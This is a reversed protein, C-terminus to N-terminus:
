RDYGTPRQHERSRSVPPLRAPSSVPKCDNRPRPGSPHYPNTPKVGVRSSWWDQTDKWAAAQGEIYPTAVTNEVRQRFCLSGSARRRGRGARAARASGPGTARARGSTDVTVGGAQFGRRVSKLSPVVRLWALGAVRAADSKGQPSARRTPQPRIKHPERPWHKAGCIDCLPKGKALRAEKTTM